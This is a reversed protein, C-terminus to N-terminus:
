VAIIWACSLTAALFALRRSLPAIFWAATVVFPISAWERVQEVARILNTQKDGAELYANM